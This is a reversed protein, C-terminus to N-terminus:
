DKIVELAEDLNTVRTGKYKIDSNEKNKINIYICNKGNINKIKELNDCNDEIVLDVHGFKEFITFDKKQTCYIYDYVLKNNQLWLITKELQNYKFLERATIIYILYNNDRLYKLLNKAGKSPKANHKFASERYGQKLTRYEAYSLNNKAETLNTYRIGTMFEFYELQTEPYDNLVGDIDIIAKKM